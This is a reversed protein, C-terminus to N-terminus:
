EGIHTSITQRAESLLNRVEKKFNNPIPWLESLSKIMAVLKESLSLLDYQSESDSIVSFEISAGKKTTWSACGTNVEVLDSALSRIIESTESKTVKIIYGEGNPNKWREIEM